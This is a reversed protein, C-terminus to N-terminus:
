YQKEVRAKLSTTIKPVYIAEVQGTGAPGFTFRAPLSRTHVQIYISFPLSSVTVLGHATGANLGCTCM